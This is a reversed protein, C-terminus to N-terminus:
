WNGIIQAKFRITMSKVTSGGAYFSLANGVIEATGWQFPANPIACRVHQSRMLIELARENNETVPVVIRVDYHQVKNGDTGQMTLTPVVNYETSYLTDYTGYSNLWNMCVRCNTSPLNPIRKYRITGYVTSADRNLISVSQGALVKPNAYNIRYGQDIIQTSGDDFKIYKSLHSTATNPQASGWYIRDQFPYGMTQNFAQLYEECAVKWGDAYDTLFGYRKSNDANNVESMHPSWNRLTAGENFQARTYFVTMSKGSVGSARFFVTNSVGGVRLNEYKFLGGEGPKLIVEGIVQNNLFTQFKVNVGSGRDNMFWIGVSFANLTAPLRANNTPNIDFSPTGSTSTAKVRVADPFGMGFTQVKALTTNSAGDGSIVPSTTNTWLNGNNYLGPFGGLLTSGINTVGVRMFGYSTSGTMADITITDTRKMTGTFLKLMEPLSQTLSSFISLDLTMGQRVPVRVTKILDGNEFYKLEINTFTGVDTVRIQQSIGAGIPYQYKATTGASTMNVTEGSNTFTINM